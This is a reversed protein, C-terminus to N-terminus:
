KATDEGQTIETIRLLRSAAEDPALGDAFGEGWLWEVDNGQALLPLAAREMPPIKSENMWKKLSKGVGRGRPRWRDGPLRNRFISLVAIKAYDAVNKLDKKHVSQTLESINENLLEIQLARGGGCDIRGPRLPCCLPPDPARPPAQTERWLRGQRAAFRVGRTVQVAGSDQLVCAELLAVYKEEADRLPAVLRYLAARRVPAAAQRLVALAWPGEAAPAPAAAMTLLKEAEAAFYADAEAMKECFAGLNRVAAANTSELAPLAAARVRNRAYQPAANTEDTVFPQRAAACYAETDARTLCLLPRVYIGRRPAIGAAGHVGTGRALRLLLTEAQDSRTHATAVLAGSGAACEAFCAYRMRRAWDEGPHAPVTGREAARFVRLPVGLRACEARVFAEDRDAAAGRLGHNVHCASIELSLPGALALLIHLLAMSDAGGSVAAIVRCRGPAAPEAPVGAPAAPLAFAPGGDKPAAPGPAPSFLGAQRCYALVSKEWKDTPAAACPGSNHQPMRKGRM